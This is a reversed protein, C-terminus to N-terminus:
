IGGATGELMAGEMKLALSRAGQGTLDKEYKLYRQSGRRSVQWLSSEAILLKM